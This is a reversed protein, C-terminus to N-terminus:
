VVRLVQGTKTLYAREAYARAERRRRRQVNEEMKPALVRLLVDMDYKQKIRQIENM